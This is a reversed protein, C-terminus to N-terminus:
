VFKINGSPTTTKSTTSTPLPGMEKNCLETDCVCEDVTYEHDHHPFQHESCGITHDLNPKCGRWWREDSIEAEVSSFYSSFLFLSIISM